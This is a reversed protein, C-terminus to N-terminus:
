GYFVKVFEVIRSDGGIVSSSKSLLRATQSLRKSQDIDLRSDVYRSSFKSLPANAADTDELWSLWPLTGSNKTQQEEEESSCAVM